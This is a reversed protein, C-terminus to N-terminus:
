YFIFIVEGRLVKRGKGIFIKVLVFENYFFVLGVVLANVLGLIFFFFYKISKSEVIFKLFLELFIFNKRSVVM